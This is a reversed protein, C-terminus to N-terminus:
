RKRGTRERKVRAVIRLAEEVLDLDRQSISLTPSNKSQNPSGLLDTVDVNLEAAVAGLIDIGVNTEGREVLSIHKDTNGVREALQEQSLGRLLRLRKMGRGVRARLQRDERM